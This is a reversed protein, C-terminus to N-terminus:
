ELLIEVEFDNFFRGKIDPMEKKGLYKIKVETGFPLSILEKGLKLCSWAHYVVGKDDKFVFVATGFRGMKNFFGVFIATLEHQKEWDIFNFKRPM